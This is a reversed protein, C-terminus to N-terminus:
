KVLKIIGNKLTPPTITVNPYGIAAMGWVIHNELVENM